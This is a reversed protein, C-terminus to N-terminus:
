GFYNCPDCRWQLQTVLNLRLYRQCVICCLGVVSLQQRCHVRTAHDTPRDTSRDSLTAQPFSKLSRYATQTSCVPPGLSVGQLWLCYCFKAEGSRAGGMTVSYRPRGVDANVNELSHESCRVVLTHTHTQREGIFSNKKM